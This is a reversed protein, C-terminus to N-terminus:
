LHGLKKRRYHVVLAVIAVGAGIALWGSPAGAFAALVVVTLVVAGMMVLDTSDGFGKSWLAM